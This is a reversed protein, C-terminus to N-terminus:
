VVGTWVAIPLLIFFVMGGALVIIMLSDVWGSRMAIASLLFQWLIWVAIGCMVLMMFFSFIKSM